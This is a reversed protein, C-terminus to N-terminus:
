EVRESLCVFLASFVPFSCTRTSLTGWVYECAVGMHSVRVRLWCRLRRLVRSVTALVRARTAAAALPRGWWLPARPWVATAAKRDKGMELQLAAKEAADRAACRSTVEDAKPPYPAGDLVLM